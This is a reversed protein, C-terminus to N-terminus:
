KKKVGVNAKRTKEKEDCSACFPKGMVYYIVYAKCVDCMTKRM